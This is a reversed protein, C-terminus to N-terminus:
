DSVSPLAVGNQSCFDAVVKNQFAEAGEKGYVRYIEAPLDNSLFTKPLCEGQVKNLMYNNMWLMENVGIPVEVKKLIKKTTGVSIKPKEKKPMKEEENKGARHDKSLPSGYNM